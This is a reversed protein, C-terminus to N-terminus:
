EEEWKLFYEEGNKDLFVGNSTIKKIKYDGISDGEQFMENNIIAISEEQSYIIGQLIVNDIEVSKIKEKIIIEGRENVLPSLPDRDILPNFPYKFDDAATISINGVIFLLLILRRM